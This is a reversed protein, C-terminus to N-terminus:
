VCYRDESIGLYHGKRLNSTLLKEGNQTEIYPM